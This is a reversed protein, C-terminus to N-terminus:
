SEDGPQHTGQAIVSAAVLHRCPGFKMQNSHFHRCDCTAMSIAGDVDLGLQQQFVSEGQSCTCTVLRTIGEWEDSIILVAGSRVLDIGMREERGADDEVSWEREAFLPRWRYRAEKPEYMALGNLCLRQLLALAEGPALNVAVAVEEVSSSGGARLIEAIKEVRGDDSRAPPAFASFRARGSWEQSTWGSLGVTLGVGGLDVTWFSPLGSELLDLQVHDVFPLVDTLIRLRRRGWLRTVVERDGGFITLPDVLETEWPELVFRIPAGPRLEIRLARPGERERRSSIEAIVDALFSARVTVTSRVLSLAAQVEVLGRVWTAPLDVQQEVTGRGASAATVSTAGVTLRLDRYSRVRALERELTVSFDINTTGPVAPADHHFNSHPLTVRAYASEDASFAEFFTADPQVSVIPDLVLWAARDHEYLWYYFAQKARYLASHEPALSQARFRAQRLVEELAERERILETAEELAGGLADPLEKMYEGEVWQQYASYDRTPTRDDLRVVRGLTLMAKAFAPGNLVTGSLFSAQQGGRTAFQLGAPHSADRSM